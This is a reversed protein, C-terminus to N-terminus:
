LIKLVVSGKLLSITMVRQHAEQNKWALLLTGLDWYSVKTPLHVAGKSYSFLKGFFLRLHQLQWQWFTDSFCCFKFFQM